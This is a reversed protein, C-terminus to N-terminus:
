SLSMEIVYNMHICQTGEDAEAGDPKLRDEQGLWEYYSCFLNLSMLIFAAFFVQPFCAAYAVLDGYIAMFISDLWPKCLFKEASSSIAAAASTASSASTLAHDVPAIPVSAEAHDNDLAVAPSAISAADVSSVAILSSPEKYEDGRFHLMYCDIVSRFTEDDDGDSLSLLMDAVDEASANSGFKKVLRKLKSSSVSKNTQLMAELQLKQHVNPDAAVHDNSPQSILMRAVGFALDARWADPDHEASAANVSQEFGVTAEISHNSSSANTSHDAPVPCGVSDTSLAEISVATNLAEVSEAAPQENTAPPSTASFLNGDGGVADVIDVRKIVDDRPSATSTSAVPHCSVEEEKMLFISSRIELLEDWSTNNMAEVVLSYVEKSIGDIKSGPFTDLESPVSSYDMDADGHHFDFSSMRSPDSSLSPATCNSADQVPCCDVAVQGRKGMKKELHFPISNITILMNAWDKAAAYARCLTLWAQLNYPCLRAADQATEIASLLAESNAATAAGASSVKARLSHSQASLICSRLSSNSEATAAPASSLADAAAATMACAADVNGRLVEAAALYQVLGPADVMHRACLTEVEELRFCSLLYQLVTSIIVNHSADCCGHVADCATIASRPVLANFASFFLKESSPTPLLPFIKVARLAPPSLMARVTSSVFATSWDEPQMELRDGKATVAYAAVCGPFTVECRVDVHRFCDFICFVAKKVRYEGSSYWSGKSMGSVLSQFYASIAAPCSVDAGQCYHYYGAPLCEAGASYPLWARVFQKTICCLDAPGVGSFFDISISRATLAEGIVREISETTDHIADSMQLGTASAPPPTQLLTNACYICEFRAHQRGAWASSCHQSADGEDDHMLLPLVINLM